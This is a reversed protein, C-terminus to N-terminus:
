SGQESFCPSTKRRSKRLLSSGEQEAERGGYFLKRPDYGVQDRMIYYSARSLKHSIAKIAIVGNTKAAKRHYYRQVEPYDRIAFNAAEVYAWALYKNGNKRNGEGKEKENSTRSSRVCRCYSAYNGVEPFRGIEGVEVMITLGLIEGIGPLTLLGEFEPRLKIRNKVAGEIQKIKEGLYRMIGVSSQVALILHEERLLDRVRREELQKVENSRMTLGLSRSVINKISLIHATRHRVLQSRKRLLDRVPREEKPYIYGERLIGLRLLNALWLASRKDDLHKLGKYQQIAAPNALHVRYGQGMLGDVLWYWNFTSEVVIGMVEERFPELTCLTERLDNHLRQRFVVKDEENIIGLYHNNSHLDIGAYLKM